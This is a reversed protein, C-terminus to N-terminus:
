QWVLSGTTGVVVVFVVLVMLVDVVVLVMAVDVVVLEDIIVVLEVMVDFPDVDDVLVVDLGEEVVFGVLVDAEVLLGAVIVVLLIVVVVVLLGRLVLLIVVVLLTVVVLLGAEVLLMLVLTGVLGVDAAVMEVEDVAPPVLVTAKALPRPCTSIGLVVLLDALVGGGVNALIRPRRHLRQGCDFDCVGSDYCRLDATTSPLLM